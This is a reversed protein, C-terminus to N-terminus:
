YIFKVLEKDLREAFDVTYKTGGSKGDWISILLNCNYVIMRNRSKYLLTTYPISPVYSHAPRMVVVAYGISTLYKEAIQDVGKAGGTLFAKINPHQKIIHDLCEIIFEKDKISRSGTIGVIMFFIDISSIKSLFLM